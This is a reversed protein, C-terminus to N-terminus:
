WVIDHYDLLFLVESYVEKVCVNKNGKRGSRGRPQFIRGCSSGQVRVTVVSHFAGAETEHFATGDLLFVVNM